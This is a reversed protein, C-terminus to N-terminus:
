RFFFCIPFCFFAVVVSIFYRIGTAFRSIVLYSPACFLGSLAIARALHLIAVARLVFPM